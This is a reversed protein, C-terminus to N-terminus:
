SARRPPRPREGEDQWLITVVPNKRSRRGVTVLRAEELAALAPSKRSRTVRFREVVAQTLTLRNLRRRRCAEFWLALATSLTARGGPLECVKSLWELRVPGKIFEGNVWDPLPVDPEVSRVPAPGEEAPGVQVQTKRLAAFDRYPVCCDESFLPLSILQVRVLPM